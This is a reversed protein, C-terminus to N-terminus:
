KVTFLIPVEARFGLDQTGQGVDFRLTAERKGSELATLQVVVYELRSGTLKEKLPAATQIEATLWHDSGKTGTTRLEPGSIKLAATVGADNHVKILFYAPRDRVLEAAAPGRAAKVRSEPNINVACLCHADLLKQVKDAVDPTKGNEALLAKLQKTTDAPLPTKLADLAKLLRQGQSRLEDLPVDEVLPLSGQAFLPMAWLLLMLLSGVAPLVTKMM